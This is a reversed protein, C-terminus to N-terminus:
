EAPISTHPVKRENLVVQILKSTIQKKNNIDINNNNTEKNTGNNGPGFIGGVSFKHLFIPSSNPYNSLSKQQFIDWFRFFPIETCCQVAPYFGIKLGILM